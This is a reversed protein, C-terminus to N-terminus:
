LRMNNEVVIQRNHLDVTAIPYRGASRNAYAAYIGSMIAVPLWHTDINSRLEALKVEGHLYRVFEEVVSYEVIRNVSGGPSLKILEDMSTKQYREGGLMNSNRFVHIDRHNNGGVAYDTEDSGVQPSKSQYAHMQINQFPGQEISHYEHNLRGMGKYLDRLNPLVHNRQLCSNHLDEITMHGICTGGRLLDISVFADMEGFDACREHLEDETYHAVDRYDPFIRVYDEESMQQLVGPANVFSTFIALRDPLKESVTGALMFQCAIDIIHYGSHSIVGIGQNCGHNDIDVWEAPLRWGGDCHISYISSVPWHTRDRIEELLALMKRFAPHYRRPTHVTLATDKTSQIQRYRALIDQYDQYIGIAETLERGAHSRTTIPKDLLIDLGMDLAWMTYAKHVEPPVTIIVANIGCSEVTQKLRQALEDPLRDGSFPPVGIYSSTQLGLSNTHEIIETLVTELDVIAALNIRGEREMSGLYPLHIDKAHYGAGILMLRPIGSVKPM